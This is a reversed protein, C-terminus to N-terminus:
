RELGGPEPSPLSQTELKAVAFLTPELDPLVWNKFVFETRGSKETAVVKAPRYIGPAIEEFGGFVVEKKGRVIGVYEMREVIYVAESKKRLYSTVEAYPVPFGQGDVPIGKIVPTNEDNEVFEYRYDSFGNIATLDYFLMNGQLLPDDPRYSVIKVRRFAPMYLWQAPPSSGSRRLLYRQNSYLSSSDAGSNIPTIFDIRIDETDEDEQWRKGMTFTYHRIRRGDSNYVDMEGEVLEFPVTLQGRALDIIQGATLSWAERASLLLPLMLFLIKFM